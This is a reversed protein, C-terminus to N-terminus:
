QTITDQPFDQEYVKNLYSGVGTLDKILGFGVAQEISQELASMKLLQEENAFNRIGEYSEGFVALNMAKQVEAYQNDKCGLLQLMDTWKRHSDAIRNREWILKDQVFKLVHYKFKPNLWMAFDVFMLPHMWVEDPTRGQATNRGKKVHIVKECKPLTQIDGYQSNGIHSELQFKENFEEVIITQAFEM